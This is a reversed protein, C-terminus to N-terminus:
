KSILHNIANEAAKYRSFFGGNEDNQDLMVVKSMLNNLELEYMLNKHFDFRSDAWDMARFGDDVYETIPPIVLIMDIEEHDITYDFLPGLTDMAKDPLYMKAYVKTVIADTDLIALGKSSPTDIAQANLEFQGNIFRIYDNETLENDDVNFEEEYTRAFEESYPSEFQKALRRILTSKGTSASGIVLVKKVFHRRFQPVIYEWYKLPNNRIETASIPLNTRNVHKIKWVSSLRSKLQNVYEDEGTYIVFEHNNENTDSLTSTVQNRLESVWLDWGNPYDPMLTEDIMVIRVMEEDNFTERLYRFRRSLPLDISEGRDSKKSSGSVAVIVADNEMLAQQVLALHGKHFPAFEGFVIGIKHSSLKARNLNQTQM